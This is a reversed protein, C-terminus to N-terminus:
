LYLQLAESVSSPNLRDEQGYLALNVFGDFYESYLTTYPASIEVNYVRTSYNELNYCQPMTNPRNRPCDNRSRSIIHVNWDSKVSSELVAEDSSEFDQIM